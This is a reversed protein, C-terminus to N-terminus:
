IGRRRRLEEDSRKRKLSVGKAYRGDNVDFDLYQGLFDQEPLQLYPRRQMEPTAPVMQETDLQYSRWWDPAKSGDARRGLEPRTVWRKKAETRRDQQNPKVAPLPIDGEPDEALTRRKPINRV